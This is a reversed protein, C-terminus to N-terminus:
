KQGMAAALKDWGTPAGTGAAGANNVLANIDEELGAVLEPPIGPMRKLLSAGGLRAANVADQYEQDAMQQIRQASAPDFQNGPLKLQALTDARQRRAAEIQSSVQSQVGLVLRQMDARESRAISAYRQGMESENQKLVERQYAPIYATHLKGSIQDVFPSLDIGVDKAKQFIEPPPAQGVGLRGLYDEVEAREQDELKQQFEQQRLGSEKEQLGFQQQQLGFQGEELETLKQRNRSEQFQAIQDPVRQMAEGFRQWGFGYGM